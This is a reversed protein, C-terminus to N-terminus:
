QKKAAIATRANIAIAAIVALYIIIIAIYALTETVTVSKPEFAFEVTHSGAPIRLARLVYNVRGIEAEQGDITATWGWPFYIESFVALGGNATNAHYTLRNPAYTTEFITDGPAKEVMGANGLAHEFKKDAVAQTAPNFNDLFQMEETPTDVYELSNVFWANGMAGRNFQVTTDSAIFYRTNLMNLVAMNGQGIQYDILDQYRSLKAAHYGGITKHFYSPMAEAFNQIDYVRYNQTTDQLIAQDAPRMAFQQQGAPVPQTFSDTNLYRKNVNYLDLLIVIGTLIAATAAKIRGTMMVFLIGM